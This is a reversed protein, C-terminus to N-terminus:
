TLHQVDIKATDKDTGPVFQDIVFNVIAYALLAVVLGIVAYLITNKAATIANSDGQSIAYRIGGLIIMIVAVAGLIFLLTNVITKIIESPSTENKGGATEAGDGACEAATDCAAYVPVLPTVSLGIVTLLAAITLKLSTRM